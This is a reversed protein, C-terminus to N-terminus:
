MRTVSAFSTAAPLLVLPKTVPEQPPPPPRDLREQEVLLPDGPDAVDIDLIGQELGTNVRQPADVRQAVVLHGHQPPRKL